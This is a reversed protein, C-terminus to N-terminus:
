NEPASGHRSLIIPGSLYSWLLSNHHSDGEEKGGKNRGEGRKEKRGRKRKGKIGKKNEHCQASGLAEQIHTM